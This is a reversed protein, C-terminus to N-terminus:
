EQGQKQEKEKKIKKLEGKKYISSRNEKVRKMTRRKTNKRQEKVMIIKNIKYKERHTETLEISKGM